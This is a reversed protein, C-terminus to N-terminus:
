HQCLNSCNICIHGRCVAIFGRKCDQSDSFLTLFPFINLKSPPPAESPSLKAVRSCATDEPPSLDKTTSLESLYFQLPSLLRSEETGEALQPYSPPVSLHPLVSTYCERKDRRTILVSFMLLCM